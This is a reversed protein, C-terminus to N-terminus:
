PSELEKKQDLAFEQEPAKDTSNPYATSSICM